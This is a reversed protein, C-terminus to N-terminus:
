IKVSAAIAYAKALPLVDALLFAVAFHLLHITVALLLLQLADLLFTLHFLAPSASMTSTRPLLGFIHLSERYCPSGAKKLGSPM